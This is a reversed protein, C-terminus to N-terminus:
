ELITNISKIYNETTVSDFLGIEINKPCLVYTNEKIVNHKPEMCNDELINELNNYKTYPLTKHIGSSLGMTTKFQEETGYWGAMGANSIWVGRVSLNEFVNGSVTNDRGGNIFVGTGGIRKFMNELIDVGSMCDDLYVGHIDDSESSYIDHIYNNYIVTGRTIASRGAYIAGSDASDKLVDHINNGSIVHDNGGFIIAAHPANYLENNMIKVGVGGVKINPAYRTVVKATDYIKNGEVIHNCRLLTDRNGGAVNVGVSGTNYIENSNINVNSGGDVYVGYQGANRIKCDEITLYNCNQASIASLGANELTLGYFGCGIAGDLQVLNKNDFALTVRTCGTPPYFYFDGSDKDYFWEGANDLEELLNYIYFRQGERIGFASPVTTTIKGSSVSAVPATQDSWNYYWYGFVWADKANEWGSARSDGVNFIMPLNNDLSGNQDVTGVTMYGSNPYRAITMLNGDAYVTGTVGGSYGSVVMDSQGHGTIYLRPPTIGKETLNIKLVKGM